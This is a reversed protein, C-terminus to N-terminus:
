RNQQRRQSADRRPKTTSGGGLVLFLSLSLSFRTFFGVLLWPFLSLVDRLSVVGVCLQSIRRSSSPSKNEAKRAESKFPIFHQNQQQSSSLVKLRRRASCRFVSCLFMRRESSLLLVGFVSQGRPDHACILHLLLKVGKVM